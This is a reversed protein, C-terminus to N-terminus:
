ANVPVSAPSAPGAGRSNTAKVTCTYTKFPTLATVTLPSATGVKTKTVGGNSSVCAATLSSIAAGNAAPKVFTVRISGSATKAVTPKAPKAPAGVIIAPSAVSKPGAGRANTGQVTCTYTKGTTTGAVAIPTVAAGNRVVTKAVGGNSSVCAATYKTVAAGNNAGATFSVNIPGTATTTAGSAATVATPAKPSGVVIAASAASFASPGVSNKAKVKFTYATANTLGTVTQSLNTNNFTQAPQAVTGKFPTIIYGTIATHGTNAPKAYSVVASATGPSAKVATPAGPVTLAAFKLPQRFYTTSTEDGTLNVQIVLDVPNASNATLTFPGHGTANGWTVSGTGAKFTLPGSTSASSYPGFTKEYDGGTLGGSVIGPPGATKDDYVCRNANAGSYGFSTTGYGSLGPKCLHASLNGVLKTTGSTTVTFTVTQGAELGVVPTATLTVANTTPPEPGIPPDASAPAVFAAMPVLSLIGALVVVRLKKEARV